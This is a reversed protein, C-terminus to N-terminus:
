RGNPSGEPSHGTACRDQRAPAGLTVSGSRRAATEAGRLARARPAGLMHPPV